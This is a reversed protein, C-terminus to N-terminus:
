CNYAQFSRLASLSPPPSPLSPLPLFSSPRVELMVEIGLSAAYEEVTAVDETSYIEAPSYAGKDSLESFAPVFLPWSQSDVIHWHFVSLKVSAM